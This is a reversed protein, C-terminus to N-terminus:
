TKHLGDKRWEQIKRHDGTLLVDPVKWGKYEEPRTYQPYELYGEEMHSEEVSSEDKGM